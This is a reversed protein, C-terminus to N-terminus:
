NLNVKDEKDLFECLRRIQDDTVDEEPFYCLENDYIGFWCSIGDLKVHNVALRQIM